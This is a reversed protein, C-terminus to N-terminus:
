QVLRGAENEVMRTKQDFVAFQADPHQLRENAARERAQALHCFPAGVFDFRKDLRVWRAVRFTSSVASASSPESSPPRLQQRWLCRTGLWGGAYSTVIAVMQLVAIIIRGTPSKTPFIMDLLHFFLMWLGVCAMMCVAFVIHTFGWAVAEDRVRKVTNM